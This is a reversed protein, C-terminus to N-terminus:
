YMAHEQVWLPHDICNTLYGLPTHLLNNFQHLLERPKDRLVVDNLGLIQYYCLYYSSMIDNLVDWRVDAPNYMTYTNYLNASLYEICTSIKVSLNSINLVEFKPQGVTAKQYVMLHTQMTPCCHNTVRTPWEPRAYTLWGHMHSTLSHAFIVAHLCTTTSLACFCSPNLLNFLPISNKCMEYCPHSM